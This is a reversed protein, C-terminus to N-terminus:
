KYCPLDQFNLGQTLQRTAANQLYTLVALANGDQSALGAGCSKTRNPGPGFYLVDDVQPNLDAIM